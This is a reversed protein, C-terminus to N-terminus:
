TEISVSRNADILILLEYCEVVAYVLFRSFRGLDTSVDAVIVRFHDMADTVVAGMANM